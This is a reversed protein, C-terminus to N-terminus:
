RLNEKKWHQFHWGKPTSKIWNITKRSNWNFIWSTWWPWEMRAPSSIWVGTRLERNGRVYKWMKRVELHSHEVLRACIDLVKETLGEGRWSAIGEFAVQRFLKSIYYRDGRGVSIERKTPEREGCYSRSQEKLSLDAELSGVCYGKWGM